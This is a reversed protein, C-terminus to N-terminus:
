GDLMSALERLLDECETILARVDESDKYTKIDQKAAKLGGIAQSLRALLRARTGGAAEKAAALDRTRALVEEGAKEKLVNGLTTLSRSDHIVPEHEDDGFVWSIVKELQQQSKEALPWYREQISSPVPAEIYQRIGGTVARDFVGFDAEVRSTDIGFKERAQEVIGYNRYFRRVDTESEGVLEAVQSFSMKDPGDIFATIFRAKPLPDWEQIGAIHRYGIIPAVEERSQARVIPIGTEPLDVVKALEEWEPNDVLARADADTLLRLATLRRNGEVVTMRGDADAPIVILPESVFFGHRAISRGIMIPEYRAEMFRLIEDQSKGRTGGPIRPNLPDLDLRDLQDPPLYEIKEGIRDAV